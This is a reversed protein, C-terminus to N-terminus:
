AAHRVSPGAPGRIGTIQQCQSNLWSCSSSCCCHLAAAHANALELLGPSAPLPLLAPPLLLLVLLLLLCCLSAAHIVEQGSLTM